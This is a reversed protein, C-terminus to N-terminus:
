ANHRPYLAVARRLAKLVNSPFEMYHCPKKQLCLKLVAKISTTKFIDYKEKLYGGGKGGEEGQPAM